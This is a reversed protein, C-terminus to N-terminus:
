KGAAPAAYNIPVFAASARRSASHLARAVLEKGTGTEGNILITSDSKAYRRAQRLVQSMASSAFPIDTFTMPLSNTMSRM